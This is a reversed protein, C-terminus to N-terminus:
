CKDKQIRRQMALRIPDTEEVKPKQETKIFNDMQIEAEVVEVGHETLVDIDLGDRLLKYETSTLESWANNIYVELRNGPSCTWAALASIFYTDGGTLRYIPHQVRKLM